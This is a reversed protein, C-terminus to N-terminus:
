KTVRGIVTKSRKTSWTKHRTFHEEDGQRVLSGGLQPTSVRGGPMRYLFPTKLQWGATVFVIGYTHETPIKIENHRHRHSRVVVRPPENGWMASEAYMETLEKTPATSAYAMSSTVGIHHSFHVLCKGGLKYFLEYRSYNGTESDKVACIREALREENEAAEGTHARSGRVLYFNNCLDVIPELIEAAINAQDALNQSIPTTAGHHRGDMVDGNHVVDFPEGRTVRPVWDHWFYDWCKLIPTQFRSARYIGGTDLMIRPPCLALQCGCHTDSIVIVNNIHKVKADL